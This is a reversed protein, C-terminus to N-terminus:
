RQAKQSINNWQEWMSIRNAYDEKAIELPAEGFFVRLASEPADVIKLLATASAAPDGSEGARNRRSESAMEKVRDYATLKEAHDASPGNRPM